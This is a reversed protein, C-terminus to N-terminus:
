QPLFLQCRGVIGIDVKPHTIGKPSQVVIHDIGTQLRKQIIKLNKKRTYTVKSYCPTQFLIFCSLAILQQCIIWSGFAMQAVKCLGM